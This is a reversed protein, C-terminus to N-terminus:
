AQKHQEIYHLYLSDLFQIETVYRYPLIYFDTVQLISLINWFFFSYRLILFEIKYGRMIEQSLQIAESASLNPDKELLYNTMAYAARKIIGPIVLLLSWLFTYIAILVNAKLVRNKQAKVFYTFIKIGEAKQGRLTHIASWQFVADSLFSVLFIAAISLLLVIFWLFRSLGAYPYYYGYDYYHGTAFPNFLRTLNYFLGNLFVRTFSMRLFFNIVFKAIILWVITKCWEGYRGSLKKQANKKIEERTINLGEAKELELEFDVDAKMQNFRDSVRKNLPDSNAALGEELNFGCKPCFKAGEKLESGCNPCYKM